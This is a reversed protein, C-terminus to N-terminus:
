KVAEHKVAKGNGKSANCSRCLIQYNAQATHFAIWAAEDDLDAFVYGVGLPCETIKPVGSLDFFLRTITDFSPDSHDVQLNDDAGCHECCEIGCGDLYEQTDPSIAARMVQREESFPAPPSISKIWSRSGWEGNICVYLHRTDSPYKPNERRQIATIGAGSWGAIQIFEQADDDSFNVFLNNKDIIDRCRSRRYTKTMKSPNVSVGM